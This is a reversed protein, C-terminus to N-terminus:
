WKAKAVSRSGYRSIEFRLDMDLPFRLRTRRDPNIGGASMDCTHGSKWVSELTPAAASYQGPASVTYRNTSCRNKVKPSM